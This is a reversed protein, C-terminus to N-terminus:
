RPNVDLIVLDDRHIVEGGAVSSHSGIVEAVESASMRVLGKAVAHGDRSVVEVAQSRTFSGSVSSVGAALLSRGSDRIAGEAGADICIRGSTVVGFAIWLKRAPLSSPRPDIWTGVDEGRVARAVADDSASPAIVTPVGSFAAMRAAVIKTSVGGSGLAGTTTTERIRDLIADTHEVAALFEATASVRPDDSYLGDTDTLIVLMGAGVLHAAIAALQDNDGLRVEDVAVTDNENIIPVIGLAIMRELAARANLYQARSGLVDKTLLVQGVGIGHVEFLAGYRAMLKTQGVAAAVQLDAITRPRESIGLQPLGAAIAGSSVLVPANGTSRLAVLQGVLSEISTDDIEGSADTLSSSGIKVVVPLAAPVAKRM